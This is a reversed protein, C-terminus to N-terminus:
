ESRTTRFVDALLEVVSDAMHACRAGDFSYVNEFGGQIHSELLRKLHRRARFLRTKVTMVTLGLDAAIDAIAMGEAERLVFVIRLNSPLESVASEVWERFQTVGHESEPSRQSASPFAIVSATQHLQESVSDYEQTPHRKRLRMKAANLAIKTIWTSLKSDGRFEEIRTFAVLYTEQVIEEAEASNDLIGRAIRFLRPNLRRIIERVAVEEGRQALKVLEEESTQPDVSTNPSLSEAPSKM